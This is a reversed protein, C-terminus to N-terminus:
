LGALGDIILLIGVIAMLGDGWLRSIRESTYEDVIASRLRGQRGFGWPSIWRNFKTADRWWPVVCPLLCAGVLIKGVSGLVYSGVM